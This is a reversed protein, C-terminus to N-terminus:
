YRRSQEVRAGSNIARTQSYRGARIYQRQHARVLPPTTRDLAVYHAPRPAQIACVLAVTTNSATTRHM